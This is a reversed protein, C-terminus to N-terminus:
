LCSVKWFRMFFNMWLKYLGMMMDDHRRKNDFSDYAVKVYM